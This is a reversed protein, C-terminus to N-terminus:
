REFLWVLSDKYNVNVVRYRQNRDDTLEPGLWDREQVSYHWFGPLIGQKTVGILGDADNRLAEYFYENSEDAAVGTVAYRRAPDM